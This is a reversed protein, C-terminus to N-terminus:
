GCLHRLFLQFLVFWHHLASRQFLRYALSLYFLLIHFYPLFHLILLVASNLRFILWGLSFRVFDPFHANKVGRLKAYRANYSVSIILFCFSGKERETLDEAAKQRDSWSSGRAM